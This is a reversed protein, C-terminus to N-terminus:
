EAVAALLDGSESGVAHDRLFRLVTLAIIGALLISQEDQHGDNDGERCNFDPIQNDSCKSGGPNKRPTSSRYSSNPNNKITSIPSSSMVAM